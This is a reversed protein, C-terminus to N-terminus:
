HGADLDLKLVIDNTNYGNKTGAFEGKDKGIIITNGTLSVLGNWRDGLPVEGLKKIHLRNGSWRIEGSRWDCDVAKDNELRVLMLNKFVGSGGEWDSTLLMFIGSSTEGLFQYGFETSNTENNEINQTSTFIYPNQGSIERVKADCYYRNSDQSDLLNIATVQDGKDSIWCSMDQIIRPNIYPPKDFSYKFDANPVTARSQIGGPKCGVMFLSLLLLVIRFVPKM